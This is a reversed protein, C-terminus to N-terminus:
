GDGTAYVINEPVSSLIWVWFREVFEGDDSASNNEVDVARMQEALLPNLM